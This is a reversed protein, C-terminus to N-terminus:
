IGKWEPAHEFSLVLLKGQTLQDINYKVGEQGLGSKKYGGYPMHDARFSPIDNIIISGMELSNYYTFIRNINESFIGAQVSSQSCNIMEVAEKMDNYPCLTVVPGFCVNKEIEMDKDTKIIITPPIINGQNKGGAILKAGKSVADEIIEMVKATAMDDILPGYHTKPNSPDGVRIKQVEKMFENTFESYLDKNILIKQLSIYMQGANAFAGKACREAAYNLDNYEDIIACAMGGTELIIKKNKAKDKLYLGKQSNGTFSFIDIKPNSLIEELELGDCPFINISGEPMSLDKIIEGLTSATLFTKSSPVLILPCGTAIASAIKLSIFYFPFNYPTVALLVGLPIRTVIGIKNKSIEWNDMEIVNGGSRKTEEAALHFARCARDVEIKADSIAKGSEAVIMEIFESAKESVQKEIKLLLAERKYSPIKSYQKFVTFAGEIAEDIDSVDPWYVNGLIENTFPNLIERKETSTRSRNNIFFHFNKTM